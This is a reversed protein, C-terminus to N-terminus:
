LINARVASYNQVYVGLMPRLMKLPNSHVLVKCQGQFQTETEDRDLSLLFSSVKVLIRM